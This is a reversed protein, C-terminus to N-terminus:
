GPMFDHFLRGINTGAARLMSDRVNSTDAQKVDETMPSEFSVPWGDGTQPFTTKGTAVDVVHVWAEARATAPIGAISGVSVHRVDVYLVQAAGTAKGIETITMKDAKPNSDVLKQLKEQPVIPCVEYTQLDDVIYATLQDSAYVFMGPNQRNEVLVLMPQKKPPVYLAKTKPPSLVYAGLAIAQCGGSALPLLLLALAM